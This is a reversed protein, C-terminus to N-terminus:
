STKARIARKTEPKKLEVTEWILFPFQIIQLYTGHMLSILQHQGELVQSGKNPTKLGTLAQEQLISDSGFGSRVGKFEEWDHLLQNKDILHRLFATQKVVPWFCHPLAILTLHPPSSNSSLPPINSWFIINTCLIRLYYFTLAKVKDMIIKLCAQCKKEWLGRPHTGHKKHRGM